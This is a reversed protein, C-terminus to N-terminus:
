PVLEGEIDALRMELSVLLRCRPGCELNSSNILDMFWMAEAKRAEQISASRRKKRVVKFLSKYLRFGAYPGNGAELRLM